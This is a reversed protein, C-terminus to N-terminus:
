GGATRPSRLGGQQTEKAWRPRPERRGQMNPGEDGHAAVVIGEASKQMNTRGDRSPLLRHASM